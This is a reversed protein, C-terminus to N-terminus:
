ARGEVRTYEVEVGYEGCVDRMLSLGRPRDVGDFLHLVPLLGSFYRRYACLQGLGSKWQSLRKVEILSTASVCDAYGVPTGVELRLDKNDELLRDKVSREVDAGTVAHNRYWEAIVSDAMYVKRCSVRKCSRMVSSIEGIDAIDQNAIRLFPRRAARPGEYFFHAVEARFATFITMPASSSDDCWCM